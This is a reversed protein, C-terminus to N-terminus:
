EGSRRGRRQQQRSGEHPKYKSRSRHAWTDKLTRQGCHEGADIFRAPGMMDVAKKGQPPALRPRFMAILDMLTFHHRWGVVVGSPTPVPTPNPTVRVKRPPPPPHRQYRRTYRRFNIAKLAARDVPQAAKGGQTKM